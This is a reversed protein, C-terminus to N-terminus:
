SWYPVKKYFSFCVFLCSVKNDLKMVDAKLSIMFFTLRWWRQFLYQHCLPLIYSAKVILPWCPHNTVALYESGSLFFLVPQRVCFHFLLYKSNKSKLNFHQSQNPRVRGIPCGITICICSFERMFLISFLFSIYKCLNNAKVKTLSSWWSFTASHDEQHDSVTWTISLEKFIRSYINALNTM